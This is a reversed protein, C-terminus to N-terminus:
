YKLPCFGKYQTTKISPNKESRDKNTLFTQFLHNFDPLFSGSVRLYKLENKSTLIGVIIMTMRPWYESDTIMM